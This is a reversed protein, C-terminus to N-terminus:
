CYEDFNLNLFWKETLFTYVFKKEYRVNYIKISSEWSTKKDKDFFFYFLTWRFTLLM